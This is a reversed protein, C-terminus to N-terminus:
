ENKNEEEYIKLLIKYLEYMNPDTAM